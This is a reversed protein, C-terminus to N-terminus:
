VTPDRFVFQNARVPRVSSFTLPLPPTMITVTLITVNECDGRFRPMLAISSVAHPAPLTM